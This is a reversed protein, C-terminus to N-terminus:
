YVIDQAIVGRIVADQGEPSLSKFIGWFWDDYGMRRVRELTLPQGERLEDQVIRRNTFMEPISNYIGNM